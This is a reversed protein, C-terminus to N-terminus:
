DSILKIPLVPWLHLVKLISSLCSIYIDKKATILDYLVFFTGYFIAVICSMLFNMVTESLTTSEIKFNPMSQISCKKQFPATCYSIRHIIGEFKYIVSSCAMLFDLASVCCTGSFKTGEIKFNRM